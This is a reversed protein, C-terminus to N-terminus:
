IRIGTTGPEVLELQGVGALPRDCHFKGGDVKKEHAGPVKNIGRIPESDSQERM